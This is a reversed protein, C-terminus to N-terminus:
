PSRRCSKGRMNWTDSKRRHAGWRLHSQPAATLWIYWGHDHALLMRQLEVLAVGLFGKKANTSCGDPDMGYYIVASIDVGKTFVATATKPDDMAVTCPIDSSVNVANADWHNFQRGADM